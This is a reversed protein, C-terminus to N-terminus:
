VKRIGITIDIITKNIIVRVYYNNSYVIKKKFRMCTIEFTQKETYEFEFEGCSESTYERVSM